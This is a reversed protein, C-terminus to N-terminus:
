PRFLGLRVFRNDHGTSEPVPHAPDQPSPVAAWSKTRFEM